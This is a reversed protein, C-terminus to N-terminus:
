IITLNRAASDRRSQEYKSHKLQKYPTTLRMFEHQKPRAGTATVITFVVLCFEVAMTYSMTMLLTNYM